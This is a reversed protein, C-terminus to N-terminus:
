TATYQALSNSLSMFTRAQVNVETLWVLSSSGSTADSNNLFSQHAKTEAAPFAPNERNM